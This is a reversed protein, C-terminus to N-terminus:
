ARVTPAGCPARARPTRSSGAASLVDALQREWANPQSFWWVIARPRAAEIRAGIAGALDDPPTPMVPGPRPPEEDFNSAIAYYDLFFDPRGAALAVTKGYLPMGGPMTRNERFVDSDVLVVMRGDDMEHQWERASAICGLCTSGDGFGSEAFPIHAQQYPLVAWTIAVAAASWVGVGALVLAAWAWRRSATAAPVLGSEVLWLLGFAAFACWGVDFVLFRRAAPV